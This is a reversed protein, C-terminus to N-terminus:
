GFVATGPLYKEKYLKVNVVTYPVILLDAGAPIKKMANFPFSCVFIEM